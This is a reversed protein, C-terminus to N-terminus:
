PLKRKLNHNLTLVLSSLRREADGCLGHAGALTGKANGEPFFLFHEWREIESLFANRRGKVQSVLGLVLKMVQLFSFAEVAEHEGLNLGDKGEGADM